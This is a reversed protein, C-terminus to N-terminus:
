SEARIWAPRLTNVIFASDTPFRAGLTVSSEAGVRASVWEAVADSGFDCASVDIISPYGGGCGYDLFGSWVLDEITQEAYDTLDTRNDAGLAVAVADFVDSRGYSEWHEEIMEREANCHDDSDLICASELTNLVDVLDAPAPSDLDLCVVSQGSYPGTTLGDCESWSDMLVRYNSVGVTDEYGHVDRGLTYSLVIADCEDWVMDPYTKGPRTVYTYWSRKVVSVVSSLRRVWDPGYEAVLVSRVSEAADAAAAVGICDPRCPEGADADCADCAVNTNV